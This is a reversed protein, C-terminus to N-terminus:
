LGVSRQFSFLGKRSAQPRGCWRRGPGEGLDHGTFVGGAKLPGAPRAGLATVRIPTVQRALPRLGWGRTKAGRARQRGRWGRGGALIRARTGVAVRLPAGAPLAASTWGGAVCGAGTM